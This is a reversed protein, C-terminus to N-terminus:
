RAQKIVPMFRNNIFDYTGEVTILDGRKNIYAADLARTENRRQGSNVLADGFYYLYRDDHAFEDSLSGDPNKFWVLPGIPDIIQVGGDGIFYIQKGVLNAGAKLQVQPDALRTITLVKDVSSVYKIQYLLDKYQALTWNYQIPHFYEPDVDPITAIRCDDGRRSAERTIWTVKDRQVDFTGGCNKEFYYRKEGAKDRYLLQSGAIWRVIHFSDPDADIAVGNVFVQTTTRFITDWPGPNYKTDCTTPAYLIARRDWSKVGLISYGQARSLWRGQFYLNRRDKLVDGSDSFGLNGGVQQLSDMDVRKEGRNDDTREGDFYLSDKDAAFRGYARFTAADVPPTGPPNQVIKGAWVIHRGDTLWDFRWGGNKIYSSYVAAMVGDNNIDGPSDYKGVLINPVQRLQNFSVQPLHIDPFDIDYGYDEVVYKTGQGWPRYYFSSSSIGSCALALSPMLLVLASLCVIKKRLM